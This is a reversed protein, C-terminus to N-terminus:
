ITGGELYILVKNILTAAEARKTNAGPMFKGQYGTIIGAGSLGLVADRSYSSIENEDDFWYTGFTPSGKLSLLRHLIVAADERTIQEDPRFNGDNGFILNNSAAAIVYQSHWMDASVDSFKIDNATSNINFATVIMKVFQARTVNEEPRFTGDEFGALVGKGVLTNIADTAWHGNIDSFAENKPKENVVPVPVSGLGGFSAGGSSSGGSTSGGSDGFGGPFETIETSAAAVKKDFLEKISSVSQYPAGNFVAKIVSEKKASSLKNYKTLSIGTVACENEIVSTIDTYRESVNIRSIVMNEEFITEFSNSSYDAKKMLKYLYTKVKDPYADFDNAYDINAYVSYEKIIDAFEGTGNVIKHAAVACLFYNYFDYYTYGNEPKLSYLIENAYSGYISYIEEDFGFAEFNNDVASIFAAKTEAGNILEIASIAKTKNAHYFEKLATGSESAVNIDYAGSEIGNPLTIVTEFFGDAGTHLSKVVMDGSNILSAAPEEGSKFVSLLVAEGDFSGSNGSFTLSQEKVDYSCNLSFQSASVSFCGCLISTILIASIIKFKRM